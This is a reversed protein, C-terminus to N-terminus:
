ADPRYKAVEVEGRTPTRDPKRSRPNLVESLPRPHGLLYTIFGNFIQRDIGQTELLM